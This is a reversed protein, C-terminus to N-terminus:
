LMISPKFGVEPLSKLAPNQDNTFLDAMDPSRKLAYRFKATRRYGGDVSEETCRGQRM